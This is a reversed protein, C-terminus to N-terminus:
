AAIVSSSEVIREKSFLALLDDFLGHFTQTMIFFDADFEQQKTEANIDKAAAIVEDQFRISRISFDDALVFSVRDHWLLALQKVECGEKIFAQVSNAFLDQNQCRIMRTQKNPDQM